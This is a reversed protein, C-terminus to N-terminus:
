PEVQAADIVVTNEPVRPKESVAGSHYIYYVASNQFSHTDFYMTYSLLPKEPLRESLFMKLADATDEYKKIHASVLKKAKDSYMVTDFPQGQEILHSALAIFEALLRDARRKTEAIDSDALSVELLVTCSEEIPRSFEKVILSDRKSSLGWHVNRLDDGERYDRLEFVQSRDDGKQTDSYVDSDSIVQTCKGYVRKTSKSAPSILVRAKHEKQKVPFSFVGFCDCVRLRKAEGEVFASYPVSLSIYISRSDYSGLSTKVRRHIVGQESMDRLEMDFVIVPAPLPSTSEVVACFEVTRKGINASSLSRSIHASVKRSAIFALAGSVATLSLLLYIVFVSVFSTCYIYFLFLGALIVAYIIRNKLM